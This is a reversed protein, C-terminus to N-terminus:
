APSSHASDVPGKNLYDIRFYYDPEQAPVATGELGSCSEVGASRSFIILLRLLDASMLCIPSNKREDTKIDIKEMRVTGDRRILRKRTM